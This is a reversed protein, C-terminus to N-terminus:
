YKVEVRRNKSWSSESHGMAVPREEGFSVVELQSASAGNALLFRRVAMGRREGLALNYEVTGREDAHGELVVSASSNAALYAAHAKLAALSSSKISSQDFDFYFVTQELLAAEAETMRSELTEGSVASTDVATTSADEVTEEVETVVEEVETVTESEGENIEGTSSCAAVLLAGLTLGLAKYLANIQM